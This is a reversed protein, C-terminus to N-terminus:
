YCTNDDGFLKDAFYLLYVGTLLGAVFGVVLSILIIPLIM